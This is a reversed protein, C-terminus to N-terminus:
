EFSATTYFLNCSVKDQCDQATAPVHLTCCEICPLRICVAVVFGICSTRTLFIYMRVYGFVIVCVVGVTRIPCKKMVTRHQPLYTYHVVDSLTFVDSYLWLILCFLIIDLLLIMINCSYQWSVIDDKSTSPTEKVETMLHSSSCVEQSQTLSLCLHSNLKLQFLENEDQLCQTVVSAM